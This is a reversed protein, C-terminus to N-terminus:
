DVIVNQKEVGQPCSLEQFTSALSASIEQQISNYTHEFLTFGDFEYLRIPEEQQYQRLHIGEILQQLHELHETWYLDITSLATSKLVSILKVKKEEVMGNLVDKYVSFAEKVNHWIEQETNFHEIDIRLPPILQELATKGELLDWDEPTSDKPYFQMLLHDITEEAQDIFWDLGTENQIFNNRLKYIIRRHENAVGDLKLQWERILSQNGECLKQTSSVFDQITSNLVRGFQDAQLNKYLKELKETNYKVFLEDELSLYFQSSGTDGQRGARGKLQLDIRESEHRETGIVHLGGLDSVGDALIIDTGRGAMNTSITIMGIQGAQAIMQAEEEVNKANLLQFKISEKELLEALVESQRISTTGILIPQGKEHRLKVDALVARLKEETKEFVIDEHNIRIVPKNTPIRYVEMNYVHLLEKEETKATGTMGSLIPYMRFYNQITVSAVTHNEETTKLGEKAEIAQHLGNSLSRGEMMRGTFLDILRIEGEHIIYDVDRQFILDARLANHVYHCLTTHELDYLNEVMFAKEIKSIGEETLTIAKTEQDLFYDRGNIFTRIFRACLSYLHSQATKKGAIILPTKAEDILISDVEDIIAYHYPRQVQEVFSTVMNDRLYDFGFETGIGYTIDANYAAKKAELPLNPINLGVTLGLFEHIQGIQDADRRALYENITIIHVGKGELARTYAPLSSVLTKGEGTQMEAINGDLLALGGILQVDYHRMGLVRKSAERVLAFADITIEHIVAEKNSIKQKLLYTFKRLDEDLLSEFFPEKTNIEQVVKEYEKLKRNGIIKQLTQIM